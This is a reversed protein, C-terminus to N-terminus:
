NWPVTPTAYFDIGQATLRPGQAAVRRLFDDYVADSGQRDAAPSWGLEALALLRPFALREAQDVTQLTEAWLAGEVGIVSDPDVGDVLAAPDWRYSQDIDCGSPCAWSLGSDAPEGPAYIQDLYARNAPSMVIKMGQESASRGSEARDDSGSAPQWYQAVTGEPLGGAHAIEAWGMPTKGADVVLQAARQVFAAYREPSLVSDPVEDGGINLYPGPTDAALQDIIATMLTWTDASEPCLASRGVATTYDWMAPQYISCNIGSPDGSLQPNETDTSESVIIANTHGPSDVEPVLTVFRAQAYAAVQQYQVRTWYGGPDMQRGGTGVAGQGGVTTLEPFGDIAVRFGQDDSLHLHLIDIKYGAATDILKMVEEPTRYHRAIDIMLGRYAYRPRDTITLAPITLPAQGAAAPLLQRLTAIGNALGYATPAELTAATSTVTLQYGEGTADGDLAPVEQLRLVIQADAGGAEGVTQDTLPRLADALLAGVPAADGAADIRIDGDLVLPDGGTVTLSAPATTLALAAAASDASSSASAGTGTAVPTEAPAGASQPDTVPPATSTATATCGALATAAAVLVIAAGRSRRITYSM